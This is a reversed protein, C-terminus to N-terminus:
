QRGSALPVCTTVVAVWGFTQPDLGAVMLPEEASTDVVEGDRQWGSEQLISSCLWLATAALCAAFVTTTRKM